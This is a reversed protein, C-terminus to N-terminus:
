GGNVVSNWLKTPDQQNIQEGLWRSWHAGSGAEDSWAWLRTTFLRLRHERTFGLAGVVQHAIRASQAAAIGCRVKASAIAWGAGAVGDVHAANAAAQAAVTAAAVEGVAIALQQQVSQLRAIPRGFQVRETAYQIAVEVASQAAGSMMLSTGLAARLAFEDSATGECPTVAVPRVGDFTLDDRPEEAINEGRSMVTDLVRVVAVKSGIVLVVHESDRAWPVRKATGRLLGDAGIVVSHQTGSIATCPEPGLQLGARDLLWGALLDTELLPVRAAAAGCSRLLAAADLLSGGSGGLHEVGTLRTLGADACTKWAREDIGSGSPEGAAFIRDSLEQVDTGSM